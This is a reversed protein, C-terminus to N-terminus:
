RINVVYASPLAPAPPAGGLGTPQTSVLKLDAAGTAVAKFRLHAVTGQGNAGGGQTRLIGVAVRGDKGDGGKSFSTVAGDRNFFDGELVELLQLKDSSFAMEVPVGRLMVSTNLDLKVEVVDGV